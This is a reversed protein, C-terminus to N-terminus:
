CSAGGVVDLGLIEARRAMLEDGLMLAEAKEFGIRNITDGFREGPVGQDRFLLIAKEVAELVEEESTYIHRLMNGRAVKKGWRGGIYVKYGNVADDFCHFPCKGVCRGCSNCADTDLVLKGNEMKAIKIPCAAEIQCKRCGKCLAPDYQPMRAGIIGIDNLDPKVCNNPCGGVAIKFKHPLTVGRFGKYFRYHIKESLAYTDILGYQCTTGKCSVVPRVKSGTGGIELGHKALHAIFADIANYDIGSVEITMRTTMMMHGDGYLRAAEAIAAAEEATIRGNRTIVRANFRNTGKHQLFGLGKVRKIDDASLTCGEGAPAKNRGEVATVFEELADASLEVAASCRAEPTKYRAELVACEITGCALKQEFATVFKACLEKFDERSGYMRSLVGIAGALGGCTSGCGMGTRFGAFLQIEGAALNLQYQDNAALLVAEACSKGLAFYYHAAKERLM